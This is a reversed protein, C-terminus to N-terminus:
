EELQMRAWVALTAEEIAPEISDDKFIFLIERCARDAGAMLLGKRDKATTFDEIQAISGRIEKQMQANRAVGVDRKVTGYEVEERLKRVDEEMEEIQFILKKRFDPKPYHQQVWLDCASISGRYHLFRAYIYIEIVSYNTEAFAFFTEKTACDLDEVWSDFIEIDIHEHQRNQIALKKSENPKGSKQPKRESSSEAKKM